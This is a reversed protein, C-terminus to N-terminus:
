HQTWSVLITEHSGSSRTFTNDTIFQLAVNLDEITIFDSGQPFYAAQFAQADQTITSLEGHQKHSEIYAQLDEQVWQHKTTFSNNKNKVAVWLVFLDFTSDFGIDEEANIFCAPLETESFSTDYKLVKDMTLLQSKHDKLWQKEWSKLVSMSHKLIRIQSARYVKACYGRYEKIDYQTYENESTPLSLDDLKRQLANRLGQLGEFRPRISKEITESDHKSIFTFVHLLSTLAIDNSEQLLFTIGDKYDDTTRNETSNAQKSNIDFAYTTYDDIIPLTITPETQLINEIISLPLKIKLTVSDCINNELVFGYGNLIEENGKAGYNNFLEDGKKIDDNLLSLIFSHTNDTAWEVKSTYDHNLLDIIPLLMIASEECNGANIVYEPFARSTFILHSWLFSSFSCWHTPNLEVTKVIIGDYVHEMTLQDWQQYLEIDHIIESELSKLTENEQIMDYWQKFITYLRERLSNSLNTNDLLAIEKPNWVIPSDVVKPLANLYPTFKAKLNIAGNDIFTPEPDFKLKALLFKLLTNDKKGFVKEALENTILADLPASISPQKLGEPSTCIATLGKKEDRVFEIGDPLQIGVESGWKLLEDM